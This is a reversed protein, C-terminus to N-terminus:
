TPFHLTSPTLFIRLPTSGGGGGGGEYVKLNQTGTVTFALTRPIETMIKHFHLKKCKKVKLRRIVCVCVCVYIYIYIYICM